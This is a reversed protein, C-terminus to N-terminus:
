IIRVTDQNMKFQFSGLDIEWDNYNKSAVGIVVNTNKYDRRWNTKPVLEFLKQNNSLFVAETTKPCAFYKKGCFFSNKKVFQSNDLQKRYSSIWDFFENEMSCECKCGCINICCECGCSGEENEDEDYHDFWEHVRDECTKRHVSLYPCNDENFPSSWFYNNAQRLNTIESPSGGFCVTGSSYVNSLRYPVAYLGDSQSLNIASLSFYPEIKYFNDWPKRISHSWILDPTEIELERTTVLPDAYDDYSRYCATIKKKSKPLVCSIIWKPSYKVIVNSADSPLLYVWGLIEPGKAPSSKIKPWRVVTPISIQVNHAMSNSQTCLFVDLLDYVV